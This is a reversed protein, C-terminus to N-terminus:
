PTTPLSTPVICHLVLLSNCILLLYHESQREWGEFNQQATAMSPLGRARREDVRHWGFERKWNGRLYDVLPMTSSQNNNNHAYSM